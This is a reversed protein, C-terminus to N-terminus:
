AANVIATEVQKKQEDMLLNFVPKKYDGTLAISVPIKGDPNGGAGYQTLLSNFQSGLKGAPVDMKLAYAISGDLGTSGAINTTYEVVNVDFPKVGLRGDSINISMLVNKLTAQNTNDLKTLSTVGALLPSDKLTAQIIKVLGNA